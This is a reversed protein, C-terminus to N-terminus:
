GASRDTEQAPIEGARDGVHRPVAHQEREADQSPRRRAPRVSVQTSHEALPRLHELVDLVPVHM